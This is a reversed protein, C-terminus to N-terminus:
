VERGHQRVIVEYFRKLNADPLIRPLRRSRPPRQLGLEKRILACVRRFGEFDLRARRVANAIARVLKTNRERQRFTPRKQRREHGRM